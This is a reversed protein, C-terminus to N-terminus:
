HDAGPLMAKLKAFDRIFKKRGEPFRMAFAPHFTILFSIGDKEVVAGHERAIEVSKGLLARCAANGLLVIVRPRIVGIQKLLHTRGHEIMAPSPTGRVPLYHVPSTIFVSNEELGLEAIMSRLLKGSRGVFPRGIAAETKGPAEGVFMVLADPNGEGPVPKGTGGKKCLRCQAIEEAIQQLEKRKNMPHLRWETQNNRYFNFSDLFVHL